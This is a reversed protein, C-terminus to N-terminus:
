IFYEWLEAKREGWYGAGLTPSWVKEADWCALALAFVMDDHSGEKWAGYTEHGASTVKVRMASMEKLLEEGYQLKRAIRLRHEQFLMQLRVMLNRKPVHAWDGDVTERLGGTVVVPRVRCGLRAQHLLDVVPAGVGTADVALEYQGYLGGLQVVDRVRQVIEPYPTGLAVRELHRLRLIVDKKYALQWADWEGKSEVRELVALAAFDQRQGLDLGVFYRTEM